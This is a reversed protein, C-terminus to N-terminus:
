SYRGAVTKVLELSEAASSASARLHDFALTAARVDAERDLYLTGTVAEVYAVAPADPEPFAFISFAGAMAAHAGAGFPIVQITIEPRRAAEILFALQEAMIRADGVMRHLVAEDLIAWLELPPEAVLVSQRRMRLEVRKEIEDDSLSLPGATATIARAYGETQLLGPVTLPTFVRASEAASELDIYTSLNRFSALVDNYPQWWAQQKSDRALQILAERTEADEVGYLDLLDSVDGWPAALGPRRSAPFRQFRGISTSPWRKM